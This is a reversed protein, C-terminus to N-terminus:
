IIFFKLCLGDRGFIKEIIPNLWEFDESSFGYRLELIEKQVSTGYKLKLAIEKVKDDSYHEYYKMFAM